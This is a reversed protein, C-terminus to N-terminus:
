RGAEGNQLRFLFDAVDPALFLTRRGYKTPKLDGSKILQYISTRGLSLLAMAERVSYAAQKLGYNQPDRM